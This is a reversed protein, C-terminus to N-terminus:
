GKKVKQATPFKTIPLLKLAADLGPDSDLSCNLRGRKEIKTQDNVCLFSSRALLLLLMAAAAAAVMFM